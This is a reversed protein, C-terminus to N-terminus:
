ELWDMRPTGFFDQVVTGNRLLFGDFKLAEMMRRRPVVVNRTWLAAGNIKNEVKQERFEHKHREFWPRALPMPIPFCTLGNGDDHILCYLVILAQTVYWWGLSEYREVTCSNTEILFDDRYMRFRIKEEISLMDGTSRRNLLTDGHLNRQIIKAIPDNGDVFVVKGDRSHTRYFPELLRDRAARSRQLQYEFENMGSQGM